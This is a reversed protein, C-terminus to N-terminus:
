GVTPAAAYQQDDVQEMWDVHKGDKAEQIAIHVMAVDPSAGHWHKENPAFFVVDGARVERVPGGWSQVRGVGSVIKLTQGLPHTHWATRAAPEFTVTVARVQAPAPAEIIPDQWVTGTFYSASARISKVTGLRTIDM